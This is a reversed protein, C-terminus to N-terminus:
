TILENKKEEGELEGELEGEEGAVPDPIVYGEEGMELVEQEEKAKKVKTSKRKKKKKKERQEDDAENQEDEDGDEGEAIQVGALNQSLEEIVSGRPRQLGGKLATLASIRKKVRTITAIRNERHIITTEQKARRETLRRLTETPM